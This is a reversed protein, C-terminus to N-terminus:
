IELTIPPPPKAFSLSGPFKNWRVGLSGNSGRTFTCWVHQFCSYLALKPLFYSYNSFSNSELLLIIIILMNTFHWLTTVKSASAPHLRTVRM